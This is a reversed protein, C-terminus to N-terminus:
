TSLGGGKEKDTPGKLDIATKAALTASFTAGALVLLTPGASNWTPDGEVVKGYTAIATVAGAAASLLTRFNFLYPWVKKPRTRKPAQQFTAIAQVAVGALIGVLLAMVAGLWQDDRFTFEVSLPAARAGPASVLLVGAYRGANPQNVAGPDYCVHVNVLGAVRSVGARFTLQEHGTPLPDNGNPIDNVTSVRVSNPDLGESLRFTQTRIDRERNGGFDMVLSAEKLPTGNGSVATLHGPPLGLPATQALPAQPKIVEPCTSKRAIATAPLLVFISLALISLRGCRARNLM